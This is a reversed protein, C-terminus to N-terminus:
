ITSEDRLQIKLEFERFKAESKKGYFTEYHRIKTEGNYGLVIEIQYKKNREIERISM